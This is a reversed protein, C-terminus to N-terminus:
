GQGGSRKYRGCFSISKDSLGKFFNGRGLPHDTCATGRMVTPSAAEEFNIDLVADDSSDFPIIPERVNDFIWLETGTNAPTTVPAPLVM